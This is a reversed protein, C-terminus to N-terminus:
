SSASILSGDPAFLLTVRHSPNFLSFLIKIDADLITVTCNTLPGVNSVKPFKRNFYSPLNNVTYTISANTMKHDPVNTWTFIMMCGFTIKNVM